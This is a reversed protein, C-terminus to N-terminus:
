LYIVHARILLGFLICVEYQLYNEKEVYNQLPLGKTPVPGQKHESLSEQLQIVKTEHSM